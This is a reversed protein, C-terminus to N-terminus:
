SRHRKNAQIFATEPIDYMGNAEAVAHYDPEQGGAEREKIWARVSSEPVLCHGGATILAGAFKKNDILMAVYPRSCRMLEAAAEVTLMVESPKRAPRGQQGAAEAVISPTNRPKRVGGSM